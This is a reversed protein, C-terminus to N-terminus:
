AATNSEVHRWAEGQVIRRVTSKAVGYRSALMSLSVKRPVYAVRIEHVQRATLKSNPNEEGHAMYITVPHRGKRWMDQNNDKCTGLFLHNPNVCRPNDCRHLVWLGDPIPGRLLEWSYRHCAKRGENESKSGRIWYTGHGFGTTAGQWEWCGNPGHRDVLSWFREDNM